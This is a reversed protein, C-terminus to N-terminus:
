VNKLISLHHQFLKKIIEVLKLNEFILTSHETGRQLQGQLRVVHNTEYTSKGIYFATKGRM